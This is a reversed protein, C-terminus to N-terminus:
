GEEGITFLTAMMQDMDSWTKGLGSINTADTDVADKYANLMRKLSEWRSQSKKAATITSMEDKSCSVQTIGEVATAITKESAEAESQSSKIGM